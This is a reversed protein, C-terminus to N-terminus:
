ATEREHVHVLLFNPATTDVEPVRESRSSARALAQGAFRVQASYHRPWQCKDVYVRTCFYRRREAASMMTRYTGTKNVKALIGM